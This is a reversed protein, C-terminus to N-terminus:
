ARARARRERRRRRISRIAYQGLLRLATKAPRPRIDEVTMNIVFTMAHFCLLIFMRVLVQGATLHLRYAPNALVVLGYLGVSLLPSILHLHSDRYVLRLLGLVFFLTWLDPNAFSLNAVTIVGVLSFYAVWSGERAPLRRVLWTAPILLLTGGALTKLAGPSVGELWVDIVAALFWGTLTLVWALLMVRRNLLVM